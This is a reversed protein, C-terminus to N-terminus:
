LLNLVKEYATIEGKLTEIKLENEIYNIADALNETRHTTLRDVEKKAEVLYHNVQDKTTNSM